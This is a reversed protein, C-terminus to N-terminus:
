RDNEHINFVFWFFTCECGLKYSNPTWFSTINNWFAAVLSDGWLVEDNMATPAPYWSAVQKYYLCASGLMFYNIQLLAIHGRQFDWPRYPVHRCVLPAFRIRETERARPTFAGPRLVRRTNYGLRNILPHAPIASCKDTSPLFWRVELEAGGSPAEVASEPCGHVHIKGASKQPSAAQSRNKREPLM